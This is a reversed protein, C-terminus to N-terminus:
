RSLGTDSLVLKLSSVREGQSHGLGVESGVGSNIGEREGEENEEGESAEEREM